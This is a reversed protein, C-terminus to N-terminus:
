NGAYKGGIYFGILVFMLLFCIYDALAFKSETLTSRKERVKMGRTMASIAVDDATKTAIMFLPVGRYEFFKIPKFLLRRTTLGHLYMADKIQSYDEKITNFFRTMVTIPIIIEDPIKMKKLCYVIESMNTSSLTYKGMMFGPLMRLFIMSIFLFFTNIIGASQYLYYKQILLAVIIFGSGILVSKYEKQFLLFVYPLLSAVVAVYLYKQQLNGLLLTYSLILTMFLKTRFDLRFKKGSM